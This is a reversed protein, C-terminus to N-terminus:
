RREEMITILRSIEESPVTTTIKLTWGRPSVIEIASPPSPKAPSVDESVLSNSHELAIEVFSLPHPGSESVSSEADLNKHQKASIGLRSFWRYLLKKNIGHREAYINAPLGSKQCKEIQKAWWEKNRRM